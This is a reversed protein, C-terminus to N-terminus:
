VLDWFGPLAYTGIQFPRDIAALTLCCRGSGRSKRYQTLKPESTVKRRGVYSFCMHELQCAPSGGMNCKCHDWTGQAGRDDLDTELSTAYMSSRRTPRAGTHNTALRPSVGAPGVGGGRNVARFM